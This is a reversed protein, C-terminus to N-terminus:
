TTQIPTRSNGNYKYSKSAMLERDVGQANQEM